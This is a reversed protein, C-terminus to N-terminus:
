DLVVAKVRQGAGVIMGVCRSEVTGGLVVM